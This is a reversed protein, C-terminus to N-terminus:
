ETSAIRVAGILFAVYHGDYHRVSTWFESLTGRRAGRADAAFWRGPIM